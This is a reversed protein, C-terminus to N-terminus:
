SPNASGKRGSKTLGLAALIAGQRVSLSQPLIGFGYPTAAKRQKVVSRRTWSLSSPAKSRPNSPVLGTVQFSKTLTTQCMVYGYRLVLGDDQFASINHLVDGINTQWDVAWSWPALNWLVEPTLRIGLLKDAEQTVRRARDLASTGPDLYYTFCGSFWVDRVVEETVRVRGSSFFAPTNPTWPSLNGFGGISGDYVVATSKETPKRWRRRVNKGSDRRLQKLYEESNKAVDVFKQLDSVLPKWGFEVNLYESGANERVTRTKDRLLQSGVVSPLGERLEGLFTAADVIPNTPITQAIATAGVADLETPSLYPAVLRLSENAYPEIATIPGIMTPVGSYFSDVGFLIAHPSDGFEEYRVTSFDGGIDRTSSKRSPPWAHGESWRQRHCRLRALEVTSRSNPYESGM